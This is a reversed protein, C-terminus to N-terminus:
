LEKGLLDEEIDELPILRGREPLWPNFRLAERLAIQGERLQGLELLTLSRGSLAGIHDPTIELTKNLDALSAEFNGSLFYVFARQNYGEAYEPCYAVLRNLDILAGAYDYSSRREMGRNLMEQAIENPATTWIEWLQNNLIRADAETEALAVESMLRDQTESRPPLDPCEAWALTPLLTILAAYRFM